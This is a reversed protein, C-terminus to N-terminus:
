QCLECGEKVVGRNVHWRAHQGLASAKAAVGPAHIGVGLEKSAFGGSASVRSLLGSSVNMPGYVFGVMQATEKAWPAASGKLWSPTGIKHESIQRKTEESHGLLGGQVAKDRNLVECGANVFYKVWHAERDRVTIPDVNSELIAWDCKLM